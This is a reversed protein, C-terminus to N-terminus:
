VSLIKFLKRKAASIRTWKRKINILLVVEAEKLKKANNHGIKFPEQALCGCSSPRFSLIVKITPQGLIMTADDAATLIKAGGLVVM